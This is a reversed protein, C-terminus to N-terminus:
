LKYADGLIRAIRKYEEFYRQYHKTSEPDPLLVREGVALQRYGAEANKYIGCGVGALIAAGVCALDPVAPIRVPLGSIDAVLQCWLASKSAGGALILGDQSPKTRFADLMWVIQFAVGEMVARAMHFRDHALDLGVFSGKDFGKSM